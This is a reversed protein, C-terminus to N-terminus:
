SMGMGEPWSLFDFFIYLLHVFNAQQSLHKEEWSASYGFPYVEQTSLPLQLFVSQSIAM